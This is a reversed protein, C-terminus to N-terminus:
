FLTPQEDVSAPKKVSSTGSAGAAARGSNLMEAREHARALDAFRGPLFSGAERDWIAHWGYGDLRVEFRTNMETVIGCRGM